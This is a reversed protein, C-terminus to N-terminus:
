VHQISIHLSLGQCDLVTGKEMGLDLTICVNRRPALPENNEALASEASTNVSGQLLPHLVAFLFCVANIIRERVPAM